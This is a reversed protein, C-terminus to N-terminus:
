DLYDSYVDADFFRDAVGTLSLMYTELEQRLAEIGAIIRNQNGIM